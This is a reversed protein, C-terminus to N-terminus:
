LATRTFTFTEEAIGDANTDITLTRSLLDGTRTYSASASWSTDVVGDADADVTVSEAIVRGRSDVTSVRLTRADFTGDSGYDEDVTQTQIGGREYTAAVLQVYDIGMGSPSTVELLGSVLRGRSDYSASGVALEDVVGDGEYDVSSTYVSLDGRATYEFTQTFTPSISSVAQFRSILGRANYEFTVSYESPEIWEGQEGLGITSGTESTIAGRASYAFRTEVIMDTIGDSEFDTSETTALIHGRRDRETTMTVTLGVFDEFAFTWVSTTTSSLSRDGGEITSTETSEATGDANTDYQRVILRLNGRDDYFQETIERQEVDDGFGTETISVVLQGSDNYTWETSHFYLQEDTTLDVQTASAAVLNGRSDYETVWTSLLDIVGDGDHDTEQTEVTQFPGSLHPSPTTSHPPAASAATTPALATLLGVLATTALASGTRQRARPRDSEPTM